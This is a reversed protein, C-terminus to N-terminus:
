AKNASSALQPQKEQCNCEKHIFRSYSHKSVEKDFEAKTIPSLLFKDPINICKINLKPQEGLTDDFTDKVQTFLAKWNENDMINQLAKIAEKHEIQASNIKSHWLRLTEEAYIEPALISWSEVKFYGGCLNQYTILTRIKPLKNANAERLSDFLWTPEDGSFGIEFDISDNSTIVNNRRTITKLYYKENDREVELEATVDVMLASYNSSNNLKASFYYRSQFSYNDEPPSYFFRPREIVFTEDVATILPQEQLARDLKMEELQKNAVDIQNTTIYLNLATLVAVFFSSIGAITSIFVIEGNSNKSIYWVSAFVLFLLIIIIYVLTYIKKPKM